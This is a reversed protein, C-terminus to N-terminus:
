GKTSPPPPPGVELRPYRMFIPGAAEEIRKSFAGVGVTSVFDVAFGPGHGGSIGFFFDHKSPFTQSRFLGANIQGRRELPCRSHCM